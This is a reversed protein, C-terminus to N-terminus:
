SMRMYPEKDRQTKDAIRTKAIAAISRDLVWTTDANHELQLLDGRADSSRFVVKHFHHADTAEKSKIRVRPRM